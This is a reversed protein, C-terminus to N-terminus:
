DAGEEDSEPAPYDQYVSYGADNFLLVKYDDIRGPVEMGPSGLPMGPVALGTADPKEALLRKIDKAPVHGEIVYGNAIATHCSRLEDPVGYQQEIADMDETINDQVQFGFTKMH